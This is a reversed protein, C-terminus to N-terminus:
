TVNRIFFPEHETYYPMRDNHYPARSQLTLDVAHSDAATDAVFSIYEKNFAYYGKNRLNDTIMQRWEDLRNYDLLDGSHITFRASDALIAEKLTEDAIDYGISQIRYPEGLTIDYDVKAKRRVSDASVRYSVTNKMFGKNRLATSLQDASAITLTSDYIVPPTGVRQIWRNFWNNSDKGSLNYFGLQLKLGGLVRHNANQRLYNYLQTREVDSHPDEINITVKDLLLQGEPVHKTSSCSALLAMSLLAMTIGKLISAVPHAM